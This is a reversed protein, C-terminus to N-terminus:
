PIKDQEKVLVYQVFVGHFCVGFGYVYVSGLGVGLSISFLVSIMSIGLLVQVPIMSFLFEPHMELNNIYASFPLHVFLHAGFAM